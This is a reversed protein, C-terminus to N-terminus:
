VNMFIILSLQGTISATVNAHWSVSALRKIGHDPPMDAPKFRTVVSLHYIRGPVLRCTHVNCTLFWLPVWLFLVSMVTVKSLSLLTVPSSVAHQLLDLETLVVGM